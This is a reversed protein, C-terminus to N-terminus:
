RNAAPGVEALLISASIAEQRSVQPSGGGRSRRGAKSARALQSLGLVGVAPKPRSPDLLNAASVPRGVTDPSASPPQARARNGVTRLRGM